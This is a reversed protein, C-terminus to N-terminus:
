DRWDLIAKYIWTLLTLVGEEENWDGEPGCQDEFWSTDRRIASSPSFFFDSILFSPYFPPNKLWDFLISYIYGYMSKRADEYLALVEDVVEESAFRRRQSEKVKKLDGGREAVLDAIDLM